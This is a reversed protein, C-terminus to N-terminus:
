VKDVMKLIFESWYCMLPKLQELFDAKHSYARVVQSKEHHDLAREKVEFTFKGSVDLTDILSRFTGRFGHLRIRRGRKEDNFGLRELARNPSEKNIPSRNDQGIFVYERSSTYQTQITQQEKLICVVEDTLPLIFDNYNINKLKMEARSITLTKKEFDIYEWKLNCLNDARLPLHLVLKLVNKMCYSGHYTYIANVLENLIEQDTIKPYHKAIRPKIIDSRRIDSLLNRECYRKLVSYKFLNDLYNFLRSAIEPAQIQKLELIKIVDDINVDRIHKVKVFPLVDKEFLRKKSKHTSELTRESEKELWEYMTDEFMGKRNAVIKNKLVQKNDIPDIDNFILDQYEKRKDRANLLSTSPYTGLSTKRVKLTTPSKFRFEWLKTGNPKVLLHLGAGDLMTYAKEKAKVSKLQTDVLQNTTAM